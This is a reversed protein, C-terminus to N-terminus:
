GGVLIFPAWFVPLSTNLPKTEGEQELNRRIAWRRERRNPETVASRLMKQANHLADPFLLGRSVGEYFYKILDCTAIDDVPWLSVLVARAGSVLLARSFGVVDDGATAAGKGTECASLIVLDVDLQLDLLDLVSCQDGNALIVSSLLPVEPNPKCHTALHLISYGKAHMRLNSSTADDGVFVKVKGQPMIQAIHSVEAQTGTLADAPWRIGDTDQYSMNSPNGLALVSKHQSLDKKNPLFRLVSASPLYTIVHSYALPENDAFPLAQFAVLHLSGHPVIILRKYQNLLVRYPGLLECSFLELGLSTLDFGRKCADHFRTASRDLWYMPLRREHLKEMGKHSLAWSFLQERDYIYQLLLTDGPISTCVTNLPSVEATISRTSQGSSSIIIEAEVIDKDAQAIEDKLKSINALVPNDSHLEHELLSCRSSRFASLRRWRRLANSSSSFSRGVIGGGMLDLFSRAKNREAIEFIKAELEKVSDPSTNRLSRLKIATRICDFYLARTSSDASFAIKLQDISLRQRQSEFMQIAEEYKLLASEYNGMGEEVQGIRRVSLWEQGDKTWWRPWHNLYELWKRAEDFHGIECFFNLARDAVQRRRDNDLLTGHSTGAPSTQLSGLEQEVCFRYSVGAQAFDGEYASALANFYHFRTTSLTAAGRKVHDFHSRAAGIDGSKLAEKGSYLQQYLESDQLQSELLADTIGRYFSRAPGGEVQSGQLRAFLNMLADLTSSQLQRSLSQTRRYSQIYRRVKRILQPAAERSALNLMELSIWRALQTIENALKPELGQIELCEDLALESIRTCSPFDGILKYVKLQDIISHIHALLAGLSKFVGQALRFCALAREYDGLQNVWRWGMRGFFLGIGLAFAFSGQQRGWNGISLAREREEPINGQGVACLALQAQGLQCVFVDGLDASIRTSSEIDERAAAYGGEFDLNRMGQMLRLYGLRLFVAAVGRNVDADKFLNLATEYRAKTDDFQEIDFEMEKNNVQWHLSTDYTGEALFSNWVEPSSVPAVEWDGLTLQVEALGGIDNIQGYLNDAHSLYRMAEEKRQARHLACALLLCLHALASPDHCEAALAHYDEECMSLFTNQQDAFAPNQGFTQDRPVSTINRYLNQIKGEIALSRDAMPVSSLHSTDRDWAKLAEISNFRCDIDKVGTSGPDPFFAYQVRTAHNLYLYALYQLPQDGEAIAVATNLDQLAGTCNGQLTRIIGRSTLAAAYCTNREPYNKHCECDAIQLAVSYNGRYRSYLTTRGIAIYVDRLVPYQQIVLPLNPQSM